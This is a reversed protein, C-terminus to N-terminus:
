RAPRESLGLAAIRSDLSPGAGGVPELDAKARGELARRMAAYAETTGRLSGAPRRTAWSCSSGSSPTTSSGWVAVTTAGFRGRYPDLMGRLLGGGRSRRAPGGRLRFRRRARDLRTARSPRSGRRWTPRWCRAPSSSGGAEAQRPRGALPLGPDRTSTSRGRWCPRWSASGGKRGASAALQGLLLSPTPGPAAGAGEVARQALAEAEELRGHLSLRLSETCQVALPRHRRRDPGRDAGAGAALADGGRGRRDGATGGGALPSRPRGATRDLEARDRRERSSDRDARRRQRPGM